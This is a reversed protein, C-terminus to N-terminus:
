VTATGRGGDHIDLRGVDWPEGARGRVAGPLSVDDIGDARESESLAIHGDGPKSREVIWLRSDIWVSGAFQFSQGDGLQDNCEVVHDWDCGGGHAGAWQEGDGIDRQQAGHERGRREGGCEAYATWQSSGDYELVHQICTRGRGGRWRSERWG